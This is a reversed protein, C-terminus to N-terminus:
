TGVEGDWLWFRGEQYAGRPTMSRLLVHCGDLNELHWEMLVM